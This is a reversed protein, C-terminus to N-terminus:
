HCCTFVMNLRNKIEDRIYTANTVTTRLYKLKAMNESKNGIRSAIM